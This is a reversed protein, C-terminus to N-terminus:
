FLGASVVDLLASLLIDLTVLGAATAPSVKLATRAIFWFYVLVVLFIAFWLYRGIEPPLVDLAALITVPLILANQLVMSWNYAVLYSEFNDRCGMARSLWEVVVPYAVWSIVYTISEVLAYRLPDVSAHESRTVMLMVAFLPAVIAAAFFSRWAGQPSDNFFSLGQRDLHALRWAGYLSAVVEGASLM